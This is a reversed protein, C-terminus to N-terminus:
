NPCTSEQQLYSSRSEIAEVVDTHGNENAYYLETKGNINEVGLTVKPCRLLLKVVELHGRGAAESIANNKWGGTRLKNPDVRGDGLLVKVVDAYGYKAAMMFPTAGDSTTAQNPDVRKDALLERM